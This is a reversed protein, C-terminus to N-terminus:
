RLGGREHHARFFEASCLEPVAIAGHPAIAAFVVTM